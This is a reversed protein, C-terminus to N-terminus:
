PSQCSGSVQPLATSVNRRAISIMERIAGLCRRKEPISQLGRGDNIVDTLHAM